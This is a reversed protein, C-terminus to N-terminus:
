PLCLGIFYGNFRFRLTDRGHIIVPRYNDSCDTLGIAYENRDCTFANSSTLRYRYPITFDRNKYHVILSRGMGYYSSAYCLYPKGDCIADMTYNPMTSYETNDRDWFYTVDDMRATALLRNEAVVFGCEGTKRSESSRQAFLARNGQQWVLGKINRLTSLYNIKGDFRRISLVTSVDAPLLLLSDKGDSVFYHRGVRQRGAALPETYSFCLQGRDEYLGSQLTGRDSSMIIKGNHRYTWGEGNRPCCLTFVSTDRVELGCVMERGSYRFLEVGDRSVITQGNDDTFDSYLHGQVMRHMDADIGTIGSTKTNIRLFEVSDAYCVVCTEVKGALSDLRWNYDPPYEVAISYISPQGGTDPYDYDGFIYRDCAVLLPILLILKKDM